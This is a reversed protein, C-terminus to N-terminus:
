WEEQTFERIGMEARMTIALVMLDKPRAGTVRGFVYQSSVAM